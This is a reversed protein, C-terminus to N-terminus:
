FPKVVALIVIAFLALVPLENFVRYFVHSRINRQCAFQRLLHGCYFHYAFLAIILTLKVHFWGATKFYDLNLWAMWLGFLLSLFAFPTVFRYLKREMICLREHTAADNSMAHHVFLRPLYFLGAFWCIVFIIHLAKLWLYLM